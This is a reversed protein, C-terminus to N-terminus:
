WPESYTRVDQEFSWARPQQRYLQLYVDAIGNLAISGDEGRAGVFNPM